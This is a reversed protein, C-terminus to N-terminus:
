KIKSKILLISQQIVESGKKIDQIEAYEEPCHSLGDKCPIFIMSAPSVKSLHATDHGAGSDMYMFSFNQKKASSELLENVYGSMEVYPSFVIDKFIIKQDYFASLRKVENKLNKLFDNRSGKNVVRLDILIEALSPIITASNPSIDLKGVTAVFHRNDKKSYEKALKNIFLVLDAAPLSADKRDQMLTTGSHSAQGFVSIKHRSINPMSKVIGIELKANQLRIGQEIHLEFCAIVDEFLDFKKGLSQYKGGIKNIEDKLVRGLSDKRNLFEEDLFGAMGRTGICSMGWDNLEEGLYDYLEVDFPLEINKERFSKVIALSSVVGAIGDFRGGFPVTDLHSGILVKKSSKNFSKYIGILNGANDIKIDLDLNKFQNTLWNRAEKFEKSFVLRTYPRDKETLEELEYICKKIYSSSINM